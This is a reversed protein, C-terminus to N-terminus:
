DRWAESVGSNMEGACEGLGEVDVDESRGNDCDSDILGSKGLGHLGSERGRATM